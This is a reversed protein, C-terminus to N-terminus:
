ARAPGEDTDVATPGRRDAVTVPAIEAAFRGEALAAQARRYSEAAFRDQVERGIGLARATQEAANGMHFDNYPDWLGDLVMADVVRGDGLRHGSRARPLLYPARSLSEMGGAAMVGAGGLSGALGARMVAMLGSGGVSTVTR